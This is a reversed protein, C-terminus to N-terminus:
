NYKGAEEGYSCAKFSLVYSRNIRAANLFQVDSDYFAVVCCAGRRLRNGYRNSVPM